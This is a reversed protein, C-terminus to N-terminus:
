RDEKLKMEENTTISEPASILYQELQSAFEEEGFEKLLLIVNKWTPTIRPNKIRSWEKICSIFVSDRSNSSIFLIGYPDKPPQIELKEKMEYVHPELKTCVPLNAGSEVKILDRLTFPSDLDVGAM